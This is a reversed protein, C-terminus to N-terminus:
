TPWNSLISESDATEIQQSFRKRYLDLLSDHGADSVSCVGDSVVIVRFGRDVAGLVTALVCVDTEAGTVILADAARAILHETLTSLAFASYRTKDIVQAPPVLKALPPLLEILGPDLHERTARNWREYYRQWTGPMDAATQPPIFRTFVTREPFREALSVTIPLVRDLWPTPRPGEASFLRQMDICLHVSRASLPARLDAAM